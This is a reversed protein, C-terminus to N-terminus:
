DTVTWFVPLAGSTAVPSEMPAFKAITGPLPVGASQVPLEDNVGPALQLKLTLKMGVEKPGSVLESIRVSLESFLLAAVCVRSSDPTPAVACVM